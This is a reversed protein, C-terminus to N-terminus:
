VSKICRHMSHINHHSMKSTINYINETKAKNRFRLLELCAVSFSYDSCIRPKQAKVM